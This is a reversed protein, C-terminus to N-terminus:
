EDFAGKAKMGEYVEDVQAKLRQIAKPSLFFRALPIIEIKDPLSEPPMASYLPEVNGIFLVAHESEYVFYFANAAPIIGDQPVWRLPLRKDKPPSEKGEEAKKPNSGDTM